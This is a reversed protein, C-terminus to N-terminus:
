PPSLWSSRAVKTNLSGAVPAIILLPSVVCANKLFYKPEPRSFRIDKSFHYHHHRVFRNLNLGRVLPRDCHEDPPQGRPASVGPRQDRPSVQVAYLPAARGTRVAPRSSRDATRSPVTAGTLRWFRRFDASRFGIPPLYSFADSGRMSRFYGASVIPGFRLQGRCKRIATHSIRALRM